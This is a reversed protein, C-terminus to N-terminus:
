GVQMEDLRSLMSKLQRVENISIEIGHKSKAGDRPGSEAIDISSPGPQAEAAFWSQINSGSPGPNETAPEIPRMETNQMDVPHHLLDDGSM